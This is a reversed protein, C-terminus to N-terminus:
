CIFTFSSLLNKFLLTSILSGICIPIEYILYRLSYDKLLPKNNGQGNIVFRFLEQSIDSSDSSCKVLTAATVANVPLNVCLYYYLGNLSHSFYYFSLSLGLYIGFLVLSANIFIKGLSCLGFVYNYILFLSSFALISCFVTIANSKARVSLYNSNITSILKLFDEDASIIIFSGIIIGCLLLSFLYITKYDIAVTKKVRIGPAKIVFSKKM